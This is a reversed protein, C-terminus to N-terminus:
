GEGEVGIDAVMKSPGTGGGGSLPRASPEEALFLPLSWACVPDWNGVV